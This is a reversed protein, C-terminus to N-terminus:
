GASKLTQDFFEVTRKWALEAAAANYRATSTDNHFAHEVGEYKYLRYRVGAEDLAKQFSPVEANILEDNGAYNLLLAAKIKPVDALPPVRGYFVVAARLKPDATALRGVLGGGWCFGVAGVRGNSREGSRLWDSAAVAAKVAWEPDLKGIQERAADESEPTGGTASLFDPALAVFGALALRRGVDEIHANLGRNEHIVIVAPLAKSGTPRALYGRLEGDPGSFTVRETKLRADVAPVQAAAARNAQLLPLLALAAGMGGALTALRELFDRRALPVHTYADYLDLIRRDM